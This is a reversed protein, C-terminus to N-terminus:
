VHNCREDFVLYCVLHQDDLSYVAVDYDPLIYGLSEVLSYAELIAAPSHRCRTVHVHVIQDDSDSVIFVFM